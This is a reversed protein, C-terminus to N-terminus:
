GASVANAVETEARLRALRDKEAVAEARLEGITKNDTGVRFQLWLYDLVRNRYPLRYKYERDPKVAPPNTANRAVAAAVREDRTGRRKAEGM